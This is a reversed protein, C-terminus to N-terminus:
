APSREMCDRLARLTRAKIQYASDEKVKFISAIEKVGAGSRLLGAVVRVRESAREICERLRRVLASEPSKQVHEIDKDAMYDELSIADAEIRRGNKRASSAAKNAAVKFAYGSLKAPDITKINQWVAALADAWAEQADEPSAGRSTSLWAMCRPGVRDDLTALAQEDGALIRAHLVPDPVNAM